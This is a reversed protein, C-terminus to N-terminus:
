RGRLKRVSESFVQSDEFLSADDGRIEAVIKRKLNEYQEKVQIQYAITKQDGAARAAEIRQDCLAEADVCMELLLHADKEGLTKFM